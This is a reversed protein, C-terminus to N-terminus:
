RRWFSGGVPEHVRSQVPFLNYEESGIRATQKEGDKGSTTELNEFSKITANIENIRTNGTGLTPSLDSIEASM